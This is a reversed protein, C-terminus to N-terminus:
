YCTVSRWALSSRRFLVVLLYRGTGPKAGSRLIAADTPVTGAVQITVALPGRTTDGGILNIASESAALSLGGAFEAMWKANAQPCTLALTFWQPQAGSAALDSVSTALARYGIDAAATAPLFHTGEVLTDCSILLDAEAAQAIVACDDGIGRKLSADDGQLPLFYRQILEFESLASM